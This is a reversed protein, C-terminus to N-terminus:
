QYYGPAACTTTAPIPASRPAATVPQADLGHSLISEVSKYSFARAAVPAGAPPRWGSQATATPSASSASARGIDRSPTPARGSSGRPSSPPPLAPRRPGPSSAGRRGSRMAATRERAHPGPRHHIRLAPPQARALGGSPAQSVSRRDGGRRARRSAPRGAPLARLLLPLRGRRPLRHQGKDGLKWTAFEYRQEPCRGCRRATSNRSSAGEDVRHAEQVAPRQGARRARQHGPQGRGISYFRRNRLRALIWREALLVGAEGQGQRPAQAPRTPIVALGYHAAM